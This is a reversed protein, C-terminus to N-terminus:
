RVDDTALEEYDYDLASGSVTSIGRINHLLVNLVDFDDNSM